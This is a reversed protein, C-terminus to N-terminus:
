TATIDSRTFHVENDNLAFWWTKFESLSIYGNGDTDVQDYLQKLEEQPVGLQRLVEKFEERDLEGDGNADWLNWMLDVDAEDELTHEPEDEPTVPREPTIMDIMAQIEKRNATTYVIKLMDEFCLEVGNKCKQELNKILPLGMAARGRAEGLGHHCQLHGKIEHISVTGSSDLDLEDFFKRLNEIQSKKVVEGGVRLRVVTTKQKEVILKQLKQSYLQSARRGSSRDKNIPTNRHNFTKGPLLPKM